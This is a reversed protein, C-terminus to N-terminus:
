SGASEYGIVISTIRLKNFAEPGFL